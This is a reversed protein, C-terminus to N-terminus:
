NVAGAIATIGFTGWIADTPLVEVARVGEQEAIARLDEGPAHVVVAGISVPSLTVGNTQARQTARQAERAFVDARDEDGTPEPIPYAPADVLLLADVRAVIRVLQAATAPDCPADFTVLAYAPQAGADQLSVEARAVYNAMQEGPQPGLMDGQVGPQQAPTRVGIATVGLVVLAVGCVAATMNVANVALARM